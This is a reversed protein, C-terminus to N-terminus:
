LSSAMRNGDSVLMKGRRRLELTTKLDVVISIIRKTANRHLCFSTIEKKKKKEINDMNDSLSPFVSPQIM